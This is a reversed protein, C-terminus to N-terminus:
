VTGSPSCTRWQFVSVGAPRDVTVVTPILLPDRPKNSQVHFGKPLRVQLAARVTTGAHVGDSEVIPTLEAKVSRLQADAVRPLTVIAAILLLGPRRTAVQMM